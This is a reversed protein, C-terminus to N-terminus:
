PTSNIVVLFLHHAGGRGVHRRRDDRRSPNCRTPHGASAAVRDFFTSRRRGESAARRDTAVPHTSAPREGAGLKRSSKGGRVPARIVDEEGLMM